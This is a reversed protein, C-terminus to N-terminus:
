QVPLSGVGTVTACRSGPFVRKVYVLVLYLRLFKDM